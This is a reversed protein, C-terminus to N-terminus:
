LELRLDGAQERKFERRRGGLAAGVFLALGSICLAVTGPEPVTEITLTTPSLRVFSHSIQEATLTAMGDELMSFDTFTYSWPVYATGRPSPSYNRTDSVVVGDLRLINDATTDAQSNGYIGSLSAAVISQGGLDFNFQGVTYSLSFPPPTFILDRSDPSSYEPLTLVILDARAVESGIFMLGLIALRAPYRLQHPMVNSCLRWFAYQNQIQKMTNIKRRTTNASRFLECVGSWFASGAFRFQSPWGTNHATVQNPSLM